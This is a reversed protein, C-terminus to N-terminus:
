KEKAEQTCNQRKSPRIIIETKSLDAIVFLGLIGVITGMWFTLAEQVNHLILEFGIFSSVFPLMLVVYQFIYIFITILGGMLMIAIGGIFGTKIRYMLEKKSIMKRDGNRQFWTDM